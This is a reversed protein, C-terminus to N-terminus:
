CKDMFIYPHLLSEGLIGLLGAQGLIFGFRLFMLISLVNLTTPVFVGSFTGLKKSEESVRPRHGNHGHHGNRDKKDSSPDRLTGASLPMHSVATAGSTEVRGGDEEKDSWWRTLAHFPNPIWSHHNQEATAPTSEQQRPSIVPALSLFGTQGAASDGHENPDLRSVDEEPTRTSFNPRRRSM